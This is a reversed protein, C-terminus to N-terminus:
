SGTAHTVANSCAETLAIELDAGSERDVHLLTLACRLLRRVTPVSDVERPLSLRVSM